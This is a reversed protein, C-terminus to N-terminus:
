SVGGIKSLRAILDRVDEITVNPDALTDDIAQIPHRGTGQVVYSKVAENSRYEELVMKEEDLESVGNQDEGFDIQTQPEEDIPTTDEPLMPTVDKEIKEADHEFVEAEAHLAHNVAAQRLEPDRLFEDTNVSIRHIVLAKEIEHQKFSIPMGVLERIVKYRAGTAARQRGFKAYEILHKKKSIDNPYKDPSKLFDEQARLEADFEYECVSSKRWTGDPQRRQGQARGVWVYRDLKEVTCASEIFDVGAAAGIKDTHHGKPMYNGSIKHFDDPTAELVTIQPIFMRQTQLDEPRVYVLDSQHQQIIALAKNTEM